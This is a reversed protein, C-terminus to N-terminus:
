LKSKNWVRKQKALVKKDQFPFRRSRNESLTGCDFYKDISLEGLLDFSTFVNDFYVEHFNKEVTNRTKKEYYKSFFAYIYGGYSALTWAKSGFQIPKHKM